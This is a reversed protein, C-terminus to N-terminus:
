HDASDKRQPLELFGLRAALEATQLVLPLLALGGAGRRLFSLSLGLLFSCSVSKVPHARVYNLPAVSAAAQLFRAKARRVNQAATAPKEKM